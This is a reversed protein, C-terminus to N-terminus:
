SGEVKYIELVVPGKNAFRFVHKLPVGQTVKGFDKTTSEFALVPAKEQYTAALLPVFVMLVVTFGAFSRRM